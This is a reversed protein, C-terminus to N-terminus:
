NKSPDLEHELELLMRWVVQLQADLDVTRFRFLRRRLELPLHGLGCPHTLPCVVHLVIGSHFGLWYEM